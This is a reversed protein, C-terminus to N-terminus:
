NERTFNLKDTNTDNTEGIQLPNVVGMDFKAKIEIEVVRRYLKSVSGKVTHCQTHSLLLWVCVPLCASLRIYDGPLGNPVADATTGAVTPTELFVNQRWSVRVSVRDCHAFLVM